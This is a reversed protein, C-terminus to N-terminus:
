EQQPDPLQALRWLEVYKARVYPHLQDAFHEGLGNIRILSGVDALDQLRQPASLASALKLEILKQLSLFRCGEKEIAAESPDPFVVGHPTGDGPIGGTVLFDVPVRHEADKVGRSGPFKEVWGLGVSAAKFRALGDATVLLDVDVTTRQYGHANVALGGCVAYPIGLDALQRTIRHLAVQVDATGMFFRGVQELRAQHDPDSKSVAEDQGGFFLTLLPAGPEARPPPSRAGAARARSV